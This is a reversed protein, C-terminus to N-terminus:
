KKAAGASAIGNAKAASPSILGRKQLQSAHRKSGASLKASKGRRKGRGRQVIAPVKGTVHARTLNNSTDAAAETM